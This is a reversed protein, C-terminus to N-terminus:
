ALKKKIDEVDAAFKEDGDIKKEIAKCAHIVTSHDRGGFLAGIEPFSKCTLTRCLYMAVQRAMAINSTRRKGLLDQSSVRFAVAVAEQIGDITAENPRSKLIQSLSETALRIDIPVNDVSSKANLRNFAGELERINTDIHQALFQAVDIPIMVGDSEAKKMLIAVRTEFDPQQLDISLGCSFRTKLRDEIGVLDQPLRDSTIIIQRNRQYLENFTHFFEEQTKEKGCIFQVDDLILFDLSRYKSKFEAMAGTRLSHILENVFFEASLFLGKKGRRTAANGIANVLHTKGLGVGGYLFLPNYMTGMKEAVKLSVAHAFQNCDGVVFNSFNYNPNLNSELYQKKLLRDVKPSTLQRSVAPTFGSSINQVQPHIQAQSQIQVQNQLPERIVKRVPKRVSQEQEFSAVRSQMPIIKSSSPVIPSQQIVSRPQAVQVRDNMSFNLSFDQKGIVDVLASTIIAAYNKKIHDCSFKNPAVLEFVNTPSSATAYQEADTKKSNKVVNFSLPKIWAAYIQPDLKNRLVETSKQWLASYIEPVDSHKEDADKFVTNM